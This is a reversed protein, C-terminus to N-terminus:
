QVDDHIIMQGDNYPVALAAPVALALLSRWWSQSPEPGPPERTLNAMSLWPYGYITLHTLHTECCCDECWEPLMQCGKTATEVHKSRFTFMIRLNHGNFSLVLLQILSHIIWLYHPLGLNRVLHHITFPSIMWQASIVVAPQSAQASSM